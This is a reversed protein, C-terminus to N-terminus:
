VQYTFSEIAIGLSRGDDNIGLDRPVFVPSKFRLPGGGRTLPLRLDGFSNPGIIATIDNSGQYVHVSLAIPFYNRLKIEVASYGVLDAVSIQSDGCCFKLTPETGPAWSAAEDSPLLTAGPYVPGDPKTGIYILGHPGIEKIEVRSVVFGTRLLMRLFYDTQFGLEMWKYARIAWVAHGDLRVGWPVPFWPYVSEAALILRGGPRLMAQIRCVVDIHDLSHHFAEFFLVADADGGADPREGFHGQYARLSVGEQRARRGVLEVFGAEIDICTVNYGAQALAISTHGWGCGYEVVHSGSPVGINALVLGVGM